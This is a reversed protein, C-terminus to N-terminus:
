GKQIVFRFVGAEELSELLENGTARSFAEFDRVSGPDTSIVELTSGADMTKIAKKAKIIPIPCNMGSTDITQTAMSAESEKGASM